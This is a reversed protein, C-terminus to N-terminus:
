RVLEVSSLTAGGDGDVPDPVAVVTWPPIGPADDLQSNVVLFRGASAAVTTPTSFGADTTAAIVTATTWDKGARAVYLGQAGMPAGYNLVGVVRDGELIMGDPGFNGFRSGDITLFGPVGTPVDVRILAGLGQASVLLHRGDPSAVIGNLYFWGPEFDPMLAHVDVWSRLEGLRGQHIPARWVLANVSDTVYVATATIVLDNLYTAQGPLSVTRHLLLDGDPSYVDVSDPSVVFVRGVPDVHVGLASSRGAAGGRAFVRMTPSTVHGVFVDGTGSSTVYIRGSRTTAIGEPLLGPADDSVIYTDPVDRGPEDPWAPPVTAFTASLAVVISLRPAWNLLQRM